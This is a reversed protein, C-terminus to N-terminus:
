FLEEKILKNELIKKLKAKAKFLNSKSTGISIGLTKAIEKHPRGEIVHMTFARKYTPSLKDVEKLITNLNTEDYIKDEINLQISDINIHCWKTKNKRIEDIATNTVIRYIWGELSNNISHNAIHKFVKIFSLQLIDKAQQEDPFYRFCVRLMKPYFMKFLAVQSSHDNCACGKILNKIQDQKKM